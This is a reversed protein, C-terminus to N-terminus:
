KSWLCETRGAARRHGDGVVVLASEFRQWWKRGSAEALRGGAAPTRKKRRRKIGFAEHEARANDGAGSFWRVVAYDYFRESSGNGAVSYACETRSCAPSYRWCRRVSAAGWRVPHWWRGGHREILRRRYRWRKASKGDSPSYDV